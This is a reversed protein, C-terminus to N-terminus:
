RWRGRLAATSRCVKRSAIAARVLGLLEWVEFPKPLCGFARLWRARRAVADDMAGSIVVVPTTPQLRKFARLFSLGNMGPRNIDTTVLDVRRRRALRLGENSTAAAVARLGMVDRLLFKIM